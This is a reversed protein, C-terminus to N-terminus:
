RAYRCRQIPSRQRDRRGLLERRQLGGLAVDQGLEFGERRGSVGCTLRGVGGCRTHPPRGAPLGTQGTGRADTSARGTGHRGTLLTGQCAVTTPARPGYGYGRLM